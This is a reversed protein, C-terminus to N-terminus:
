FFEWKIPIGMIQAGMPLAIRIIVIEPEQRHRTVLAERKKLIDNLDIELELPNWCGNKPFRLSAITEIDM